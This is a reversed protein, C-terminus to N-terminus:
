LAGGIVDGTFQNSKVNSLTVFRPVEPDASVIACPESAGDYCRHQVACVEPLNMCFFGVFDM